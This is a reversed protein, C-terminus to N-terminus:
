ITHLKRLRNRSTSLIHRTSPVINIIIRTGHPSFGFTLSSRRPRPTAFLRAGVIDVPPSVINERREKLRFERPPLKRPYLPPSTSRALTHTFFANRDPGTWKRGATVELLAVFHVRSSWQIRTIYLNGKPWHDQLRKRNEERRFSFNYTQFFPAVAPLRGYYIVICYTHTQKV